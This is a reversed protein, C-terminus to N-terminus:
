GPLTPFTLFGEEIEAGEPGFAVFFDARAFPDVIAQFSAEAEELQLAPAPDVTNRGAAGVFNGIVAIDPNFIKSLASTNGYIPLQGTPGGAGAAGPPVAVQAAPPTPAPAAAPPVAAKGELAGLRADLEALKADYQKRLAEIEQRVREIETPQAQVGPTQAFAPAAFLLGGAAL